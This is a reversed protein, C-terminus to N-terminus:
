TFITDCIHIPLNYKCSLVKLDKYLEYYLPLSNKSFWFGVIKSKTVIHECHDYIKKYEEMSTINKFKGIVEETIYREGLEGYTSGIDMNSVLLNEGKVYIGVPGLRESKRSCCIQLNDNELIKKLNLLIKLDPKLEKVDEDEPIFFLGHSLIVNNFLLDPKETFTSIPVLRLGPFGDRLRKKMNKVLHKKVKLPLYDGYDKLFSPGLWDSIKKYSPSNWNILDEYGKIMEIYKIKYPDVKKWNIKHKNSELNEELIFYTYIYQNWNAYKSLDSRTEDNYYLNNANIYGSGNEWDFKNIFKKFYYVPIYSTKLFNAWSLNYNELEGEELKLTNMIVNEMYEEEHYNEYKNILEVIEELM